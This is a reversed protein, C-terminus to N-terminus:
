ANEPSLADLLGELLVDYDIYDILDDKSRIATPTELTGMSFDYDYWDATDENVAELIHIACLLNDGNIQAVAYEKLEEYSVIDTGQDRLKEIIEEMSM